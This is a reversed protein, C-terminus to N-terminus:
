FGRLRRDLLRRDLGRLRPDILLPDVGTILERRRIQDLLLFQEVGPNVRGFGPNIFPRNLPTTRGMQPTVAPRMMGFRSGIAFLQGPIGAVCFLTLLGASLSLLGRFM